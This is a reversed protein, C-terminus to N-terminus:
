STQLERLMREGARTPAFSAEGLPSIQQLYGKNVLASAAQKASGDPGVSSFESRRVLRKKGVILLVKKEIESLM